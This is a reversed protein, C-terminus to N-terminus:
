SETYFWPKRGQAIRRGPVNMPVPVKEAFLEMGLPEKRVEQQADGKEEGGGLTRGARAGGFEKSRAASASVPILVGCEWNKVNLKPSKSTKDM